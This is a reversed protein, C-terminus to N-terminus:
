QEFGPNRLRSPQAQKPVPHFVEYDRSRATVPTKEDVVEVRVDDMWARGTGSLVFGLNVISATQPVDLVLQSATWQTTGYLRREKAGMNDFAVLRGDAAEVRMWLGSFGHSDSDTRLQASFKVRKGRWATADLTQSVNGVGYRNALATIRASSDGSHAISRDVEAIYGRGGGVWGAPPKGPQSEQLPAAQFEAAPAAPTAQPMVMVEDIEQTVVRTEQPADNAVHAPMTSAPLQAPAAAQDPMADRGVLRLALVGVFVLVSVVALGGPKVHALSSAQASM